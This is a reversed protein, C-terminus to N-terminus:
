VDMTLDKYREPDSFSGVNPNDKRWWNLITAYHSKYKKGTSALYGSLREIYEGTKSNVQDRLRSHEELTLLVNKFEGFKEKHM